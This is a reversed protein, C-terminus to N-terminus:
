LIYRSLDQNSVVDNLRQDVYAPTITITQGSLESASYSLEELLIEMITYLRRAGINESTTNVEWAIESIRTIAEDTFRVDV